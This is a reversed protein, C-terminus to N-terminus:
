RVRFKATIFIVGRITPMVGSRPSSREPAGFHGWAGAPPVEQLRTLADAWSPPGKASSYPNPPMEAATPPAQRVERVVRDAPRIRRPRDGPAPDGVHRRLDHLDEADRHWREVPYERTYGYGGLIQIAEETVKVAVEGAKLKSMSGEGATFPVNNRGMWASRALGPAPRRRDGDAHRGAQLRHGPEHHDAARVGGAGQRLGVLLEYAAWRSASPRRGSAPVLRRSRRWRRSSPMHKRERWRTQGCRPCRRIEKTAHPDVEIAELYAWGAVFDDHRVVILDGERVKKSNAVNSDYSYYIGASDDYGQNAAWSREADSKM